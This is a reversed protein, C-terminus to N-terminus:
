FTFLLSCMFQLDNLRGFRLWVSASGAVQLLFSSSLWEPPLWCSHLLVGNAVDQFSLRWRQKCGAKRKESKAIWRESNTRQQQLIWCSPAPLWRPAAPRPRTRKDDCHRHSKRKVLSCSYYVNATGQWGWRNRLGLHHQIALARALTFPFSRIGVTHLTKFPRSASCHLHPLSTPISPTCTWFNVAM